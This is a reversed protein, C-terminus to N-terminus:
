LFLAFVRKYTIFIVPLENVLLVYANSLRGNVRVCARYQAELSANREEIVAEKYAVVANYFAGM